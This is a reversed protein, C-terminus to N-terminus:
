KLLDAVFAFAALTAFSAALSVLTRRARRHAQEYRGIYDGHRAEAHQQTKLVYSAIVFGNM